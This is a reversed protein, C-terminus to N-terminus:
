VKRQLFAKNEDKREIWCLEAGTKEHKMEWLTAHLEEVPRVRAIRFGHITENIQM